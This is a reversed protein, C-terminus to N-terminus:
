PSPWDTFIPKTMWPLKVISISWPLQALLLDFSESELQLQWGADTPRLLGPRQLFSVQLGEVSTSRLAPWHTVMAALLAQCEERDEANLLGQTVPLPDTPQLGLLPKILGLEFEFIAERGCALWHLLAAAHPLEFPSLKTGDEDLLGRAAFLSSLFPHALVLGASHVRLGAGDIGADNETPPSVISNTDPRDDLSRADTPAANPGSPTSPEDQEPARTDSEGTNRNDSARQAAGEGARIGDDSYLLPGLARMLTGDNGPLALLAPRLEDDDPIREAWAMSLQIAQIQLQGHEPLEARMKAAPWNELKRRQPSEPWPASKLMAPMWERHLSAPLLQLFRFFFAVLADFRGPLAARVEAPNGQWEHALQVAAERLTGVQTAVEGHLDQWDLQGSHLYHLLNMRRQTAAPRRGAAGSIRAAAGGLAEDLQEAILAPLEAALQELNRVKLKLSLRSLHVVEDGSDLADFAQELAPMLVSDIDRRMQARLAFATDEDPARLEWRQRRIRHAASSM